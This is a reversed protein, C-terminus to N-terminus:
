ARRRRQRHANRASACCLWPFTRCECRLEARTVCAWSGSCLWARPARPVPLAAGCRRPAARFCQVRMRSTSSASGASAAPSVHPPGACPPAALGWAHGLPRELLPERPTWGGRGAAGRQELHRASPGHRPEGSSPLPCSRGRRCRSACPGAAVLPLPSTGASRAWVPASSQETHVCGGM